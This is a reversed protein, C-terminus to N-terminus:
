LKMTQDSKILPFCMTTSPLFQQPTFTDKSIGNKAEQCPLFFFGITSKNSYPSPLTALASKKAPLQIKGEWTSTLKCPPCTRGCSGEPVNNHIREALYLTQNNATGGWLTNTLGCRFGSFGLPRQPIECVLHSSEDHTWSGSILESELHGASGRNMLSRLWWGAWPPSLPPRTHNFFVSKSNLNGENLHYRQPRGAKHTSCSEENREVETEWRHFSCLFTVERLDNIHLSKCPTQGMSLAWPHQSKNGSLDQCANLGDYTCWLCSRAVWVM